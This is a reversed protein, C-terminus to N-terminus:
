DLSRLFSVHSIEVALDGDDGARAPADPTLDRQLEGGLARQDDDVVEVRFRRLLGRGVDRRGAALGDDHAPDTDASPNASRKTPV